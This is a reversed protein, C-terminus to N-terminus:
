DCVTVEIEKIETVTNVWRQKEMYKMLDTLENAIMMKKTMHSDGGKYTVEYLRM